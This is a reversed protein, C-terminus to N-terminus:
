VILVNPGSSIKDGAKLRQPDGLYCPNYALGGMQPSSSIKDGAIITIGEKKGLPIWGLFSAQACLRNLHM